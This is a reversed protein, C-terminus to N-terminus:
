RGSMVTFGVIDLFMVTVSDHTRALLGFQDALQSLDAM